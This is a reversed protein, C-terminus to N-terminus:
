LSMMVAALKVRNKDKIVRRDFKQYWINRRHRHEKLLSLRPRIEDVDVLHHLVDVVKPLEGQSSTMRIAYSPRSATRKL